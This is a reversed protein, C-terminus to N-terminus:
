LVKLLAKLKLKLYIPTIGRKKESLFIVDAKHNRMSFTFNKLGNNITKLFINTTNIM